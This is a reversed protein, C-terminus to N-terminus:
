YIFYPSFDFTRIAANPIKGQSHFMPYDKHHITTHKYESAQLLTDKIEKYLAIADFETIQKTITTQTHDFKLEIYIGHM